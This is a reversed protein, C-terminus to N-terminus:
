GYGMPFFSSCMQGPNRIRIKSMRPRSPSEGDVRGAQSNENKLMIPDQIGLRAATVIIPRVM